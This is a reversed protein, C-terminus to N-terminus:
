PHIERELLSEIGPFEGLRLVSQRARVLTGRVYTQYVRKGRQSIQYGYTGLAKLLRQVSMLEFQTRFQEREPDSLRRQSLFYGVLDDIVPEPLDISDKLLSVLDYAAPGM